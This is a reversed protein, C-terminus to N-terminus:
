EPRAGHSGSDLSKLCRGTTSVGPNGGARSHRFAINEIIDHISIEGRAARTLDAVLADSPELGELRQQAIANAVAQLNRRIDQESPIIRKERM